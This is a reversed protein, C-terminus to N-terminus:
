EVRGVDMNIHLQLPLPIRQSDNTGHLMKLAIKDMHSHASHYISQTTNIGAFLAAIGDYEIRM